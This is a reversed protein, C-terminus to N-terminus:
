PFPLAKVATCFASTSGLSWCSVYTYIILVILLVIIIWAVNRLLKFLALLIVAGGLSVLLAGLSFNSQNITSVHFLPSLILGGVFAGVIGVVIDAILGQRSNTKMILSAVWGILGGVLLWVIFNIM